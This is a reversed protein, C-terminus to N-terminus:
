VSWDAFELGTLDRLANADPALAEELRQRLADSLEPRAMPRSLMRRAAAQVRARPRPPIRRVMRGGIGARLQAGIGPYEYKAWGENLRRSTDVEHGPDVDLFRFITALTPQPQDQLDSLPLLLVQERDFHELFHGLQEAYRSASVYPNYPDDLDAFAAEIPRPDYLQFREERYSAVAREIPDRVMYLLRADPVLSAMREAVGPLAPSRTYMTSSEGVVTMDAAFQQHYWPLWASFDPDQFFRLEKQEAMAIQPHTDLYAHLSTTGAKAAGIVMLNPLRGSHEQEAFRERRPTLKEALGDRTCSPCVDLDASHAAMRWGVELLVTVQNTAM